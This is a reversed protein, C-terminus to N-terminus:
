SRRERLATVMVGVWAATETTLERVELRALDDVVLVVPARVNGVAERVVVPVLSGRRTAQARLGLRTVWWQQRQGSFGSQRAFAELSGGVAQWEGWVRRADAETWRAGAGKNQKM